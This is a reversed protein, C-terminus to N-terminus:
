SNTALKCVYQLNVFNDKILINAGDGKSPPGFM